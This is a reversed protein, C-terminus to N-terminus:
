EVETNDTNAEAEVEGGVTLDIIKFDYPKGDTSDIKIAIGSEGGLVGDVFSVEKDRGVWETDANIIVKANNLTLKASRVDLDGGKFEITNIKELIEDAALDTDESITWDDTVYVKTIGAVADIEKLGAESDLEVSVTQESNATVKALVNNVVEGNGNNVTVKITSKSPTITGNNEAIEVSTSTAISGNNTVTVSADKTELTGNNVLAVNAPIVVATKATMTGNNNITGAILSTYGGWKIASEAAVVVNGYNLTFQAGCTNETKGDFTVTGRAVIKGSKNWTAGAEVTSNNNNVFESQKIILNGATVKVTAKALTSTAAITVVADEGTVNVSGAATIGNITVNGTTVNVNGEFDMDNLEIGNGDGEVNMNSRFSIRGEISYKKLLDIIEANIPLVAADDETHLAFQYVTKVDETSAVETLTVTNDIVKDLMAEFEEITQIATVPAVADTITNSKTFEVTALTGATSKAVPKSGDTPFNYEETPYRKGPAYTVVDAVAFKDDFMKGDALYVTMKIDNMDYKEAPMVVNFAFKEGPEITVGGDFTIEISKKGKEMESYTVDSTAAYMFETVSNWDGVPNLVTEKTEGKATYAVKTDNLKSQIAKHNVTASEWLNASTLIVKTVTVAKGVYNGEVDKSGSPLVKYNNLLTFQPYAFIPKMGVEQVLGQGEAAIFKYGIWSPNAGEYLEKIAQNPLEKSVTQALPLVVKLPTRVVNKENYPFYFMYNGEVMLASTRWESETTNVYKYNTSAYNPTIAYNNWVVVNGDKDKTPQTTENIIYEDIIRAGIGDEGVTFDIDCYNADGLTARTEADDLGLVVSGVVPRNGLDVKAVEQQPAIEDATCAAFIAPLVLGTLLHKTKM